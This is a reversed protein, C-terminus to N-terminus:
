DPSTLRGARRQGLPIRGVAAIPRLAVDVASCTSEVLSQPIAREFKLGCRGDDSWVVTCYHEQGQWQLFGNVGPPPPLETDFRAGHESLNSLRGHRAGGALSLRAPCDIVYRRAVRRDSQVDASKVNFFAL